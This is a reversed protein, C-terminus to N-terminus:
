LQRGFMPLGRERQVKEVEATVQKGSIYVNFSQEGSQSQNGMAGMASVVAEYVGKSIGGVIMDNNAVVTKGGFFSGAMEGRNMTFLGDEVFGGDAYRGGTVQGTMETYPEPVNFEPMPQSSVGFFEKVKDIAKGISGLFDKFFDGIGEFYLRVTEGFGDWIGTFITELGGWAREWDGSFIGAVFDTLGEFVTIATEIVTKIINGVTEFSGGFTDVLWTALPVLIDDWVTALLIGISELIPFFFNKWMLTIVEWAGMFVTTLFNAIPQLVKEWLFNFAKVLNDWITTAVENVKNRFDENTKYLHVFWAVLGVIAVIILAIWGVSLGTALAIKGLVAGVQLGITEFAGSMLVGFETFSSGIGAMWAPIGVIKKMVWFATVAGGAISMIKVVRDAWPRLQKELNKANELLQETWLTEVSIPLDTVGFPKNTIGGAGSSSSPESLINLEDFGMAQSHLKKLADTAGDANKAADGLDDIIGEFGASKSAWDIELMKLGFFKGALQVARTVAGVFASVYPTLKLIMPLFLSGLNQTLTLVMQSLQRLAGEATGIEKAYTGIANQGMAGFQETMALYRLLTKQADTMSEVSQVIGNATAIREINMNSGINELLSDMEEETSNYDRALQKLTSETISMGESRVARVQGAMASQMKYFAKELTIKDNFAAYLDYAMETLGIAMTRAKEEVVGFGLAISGLVSSEAMFQKVNVGLADNVRMIKKYTAEAEEGFVRYFRASVGDMGASDEIWDVLTRTVRQFWFLAQRLSYLMTTLNVNTVNLTNNVKDFSNAMGSAEKATKGVNTPLQSVGKSMEGLQMSLPTLANTIKDLSSVFRDILEPDLSAFVTPIEKIQKLISQLNTAKGINTLGSFANGLSELVGIASSSSAVGALTESLKQLNNVVTTLKANARLRGLSESLRDLSEHASTSNSSINILLSGIETTGM